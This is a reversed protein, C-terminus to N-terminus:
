CPARGPRRRRAAASGLDVAHRLHEGHGAAVVQDRQQPHRRVVLHRREDGPVQEADVADGVRSVSVPRGPTSAARGRASTRARARGGARAALRAPRHAGPHRPVPRDRPVTGVGITPALLGVVCRAVTAVRLEAPAPAGFRDDGRQRRVQDPARQEAAYRIFVTLALDLALLSLGYFVVAVREADRDDVFQGVLKTPFPLFSALSCCSCTSGTSADRGGGPAREHRGLAPALVGRDHPLEHRLALYPRGSTSSRACSARDAARTRCASSSSSCRSRLRSCATASRRVSARAPAGRRLGPEARSWHPPPAGRAASVWSPHGRRATGQGSPLMASRCPGAPVPRATCPPRGRSRRARCRRACACRACGASRDLVRMWAAMDIMPMLMGTRSIASASPASVPKVSSIKSMGCTVAARSSNM